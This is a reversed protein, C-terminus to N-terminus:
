GRPGPSVGTDSSDIRAVWCGRIQRLKREVSRRVYGLREGIEDNTHGEMKLVAITRLEDSPLKQLLEQYRESVQAAFEPTPERGVIQELEEPAIREIRGGGRKEAAEWRLQDVAKQATLVVLLRWLNTRDKLQPFRGRRADRCFSDFANLVVDEEDAIRRSATRLKQRALEMLDCFYREWLRQAAQDDGVQLLQLWHTVSGTSPM